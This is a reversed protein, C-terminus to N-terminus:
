LPVQYVTAAYRAGTDLFLLLTEIEKKLKTSPAAAMKSLRFTAVCQKFSPSYLSEM